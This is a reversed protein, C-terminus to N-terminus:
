RKKGRHTTNQIVEKSIEVMESNREEAPDLGSRLVNMENTIEIIVNKVELLAMQSLHRTM